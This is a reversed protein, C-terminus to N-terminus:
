PHVIAPDGDRWISQFHSTNLTYFQDAEHQRATVLHLYDFIAGGRVFGILEISQVRAMELADPAVAVRGDNM